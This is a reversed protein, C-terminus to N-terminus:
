IPLNGDKMYFVASLIDQVPVMAFNFVRIVYADSYRKTFDQTDTMAAIKMIENDHCLRFPVAAPSVDKM